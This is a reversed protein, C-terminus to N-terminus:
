KCNLLYNIKFLLEEVDRKNQDDTQLSYYVLDSRLNTLPMQWDVQKNMKFIYSMVLEILVEESNINFTGVSEELKRVVDDSKISM